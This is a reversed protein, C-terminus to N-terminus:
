DKPIPLELPLWFRKLHIEYEMQTLSAFDLFTFKGQREFEDFDMRLTKINAYFQAKSESFSIYLGNENKNTLGYYIFQACLITKGSGSKGAIMVTSGKPIGGEILSDLGPVGTSIRELM